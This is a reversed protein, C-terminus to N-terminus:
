NGEEMGREYEEIGRQGGGMGEGTEDREGREEGEAEGRATETLPREGSDSPPEHSDNHCRRSLCPRGRGPTLPRSLHKSPPPRIAPSSTLATQYYFPRTPRQAATPVPAPLIPPQHAHHQSTSSLPLTPAKATRRESEREKETCRVALRDM